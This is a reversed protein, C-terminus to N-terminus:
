RYGCVLVVQVDVLSASRSASSIHLFALRDERLELLVYSLATTM